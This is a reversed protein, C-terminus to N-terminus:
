TETTRVTKEPESYPLASGDALMAEKIIPKAESVKRGAYPGVKMVGDTFGQLFLTYRACLM